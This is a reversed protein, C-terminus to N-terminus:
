SRETIFRITEELSPERTKISLIRCQKRIHELILTNSIISKRYYIVLCSDEYRYKELPLDELDPFQGRELVLELCDGIGYKLQLREISGDFLKQGKDILILHNCLLELDKMNHGTYFITVGRIRNLEKLYQMVKQKVDVALGVTPEDLLLVAPERLLTYAIEGLMKQGLSLQNVRNEWFSKIGVHEQLEEIKKEYTETPIRYMEKGNELSFRLPMDSWLQSHTASVMGIFPILEKQRFYPELGNVRITGKDPLLSGTLMRIVTTKGAGNLGVLGACEGQRVYFSLGDIVKKNGYSKEVDKVILM